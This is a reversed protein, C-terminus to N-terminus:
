DVITRGSPMVLASQNLNERYTLLVQFCCLALMATGYAAALGAAGWKPIWLSALFIAAIALGVDLGFRCWTRGVSILRAMYVNNAAEPITSIALIMLTPWGVRFSTGYFAMIAKAFIMVLISPIAALGSNLLLNARFVRQFQQHGSSGYLNSLLPVLMGFASTPLFLILLRWRDAATYLGLQSYGGPQRVLFTNCFWLAPGVVISALFAPLTFARLVTREGFCKRFDLSIRSLGCEKRLARNNLIWNVAMTLVLAWVAGILGWRWVGVVVLAFSWLGVLVNVRAITQFAEFGALAGTQAGNLGGFFVLGSGIILPRTLHPEALIRSAVPRAFAILVLAMAASSILAVVSSLALIRGVKGADKGRFEAVYKTATLGLGLGAFIGFTGVTSQIMGLQGFCQKGLFRACVISAVLTFGRSIVAGAVSWSVGLAFRARLSGVPALDKRKTAFWQWASFGM